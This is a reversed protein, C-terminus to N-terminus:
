WFIRYCSHTWFLLAAADAGLVATQLLIPSGMTQERSSANRHKM